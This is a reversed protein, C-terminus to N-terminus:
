NNPLDFSGLVVYDSNAPVSSGHPQLRKLTDLRYLGAIIQVHQGAATTPISLEHEDVITYGPTWQKTPYRGDVPYSDTQSVRNGRDDVLHIFVSYNDTPMALAQWYLIVKMTRGARPSEPVLAYGRLVIQHGFTANLRHQVPLDKPQLINLQFFTAHSQEVHGLDKAGALLVAREGSTLQKLEWDDALLYVNGGVQTVHQLIEMLQPLPALDYRMSDLGGYLRLSGSHQMALVLAPQRAEQVALQAALQYKLDEPGLNFVFHSRSYEISAWSFIALGLVVCIGRFWRQHILPMLRVIASAELIAISPLGPLLFRGYWWADDITYFSFFILFLGAFGAFFLRLRTSLQGLAFGLGALLLGVGAQQENLRQLYRLCRQGADLLDGTLPPEGYGTTLPAGYLYQNVFGEAVAFPLMGLFFLFLRRRDRQWLLWAATPIVILALNPRIWIGFGEASGVLLATWPSPRPYLLAVLALTTFFTAPVDSMPAISSMLYNPLVFVLLAAITGGIPGLSFRGLLYTLVVTMSGLIPTVWFMAEFGAIRFAFLMLLPYGFPYTPVTEDFGKPAYGLPHTIASNEPLGFPTLVHEAAILHGTNLRLAESVYGYSDAGGATDDPHARLFMLIGVLIIALLVAEFLVKSPVKQSIHAHTQEVGAYEVAM